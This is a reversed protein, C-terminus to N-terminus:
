LRLRITFAPTLVLGNREISSDGVSGTWYEHDIGLEILVHLRRFGTALGIVGGTRVGTLEVSVGGAEGGGIHELGGRAGVWLELVSLVDFSLVVPVTGGVRLAAADEDGGVGLHPALGVILSGFGLFPLRARLLARGSTGTGDLGLDAQPGLGYRLFVVPAAGGPAGFRLAQDAEDGGAAPALEGTPVRFAAGTALDARGPPVTRGGAFSPAAPACGAAAALLGV